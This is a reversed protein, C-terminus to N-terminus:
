EDSQWEKPCTRNNKFWDTDKLKTNNNSCNLSIEGYNCSFVINGNMSTYGTLKGSDSLVALTTIYVKDTYKAVRDVFEQAPFTHPGPVGKTYETTGACCCVCVYEPKIKSLLKDSSSTYSGHHGGKFLVVEPLNPNSEVLSAEGAEELDGTFLYRNSGQSILVCVSYDNENSAKNDYFKQYLVEMTISGDETLNYVKQAGNANNICDMATYCNAGAAVEKDRADCYKKYIGSTADTLAFEIINKCEYREFIGKASSTGVFGAIHDQHAHTAIVYELVGDTCYQNVYNGITKASDKRSGADILIDTDGAKIYVSDGTYQNGLELFHISLNGNAIVGSENVTIQVECTETVGNETYSIELTKTGVTSTDVASTNYTEIQKTSGNNYTATVTLKALDIQEGLVVAGNYTASVYVLSLATVTVKVEATQGGFTITVTQEGSVTADYDFVEFNTVTKEDGNDYVAVVTFISKSLEDGCYITVSEDVTVHLSEVTKPLLYVDAKTTKGQYTITVTQNTWVDIDYGSIAFDTVIEEKGNNYVATVAFMEKTVQHGWYVQADDKFEALIYDLMIPQVTVTVQATKGDYSITVTQKGSTNADYGIIEFDTVPEEKGNNYIAVVDFDNADLGDGVVLDSGCYEAVISEVMVPLVNVTLPTTVTRDNETYSISIQKEGVTQTVSDLGEVSFESSNLQKTNGDWYTVSVSVDDVTFACGVVAQKSQEAALSKPLAIWKAYYIRSIAEDAVINDAAKVTCQRDTYWGDFLYGERRVTEPFELATGKIVTQAIPEAGDYNWNFKVTFTQNCAALAFIAFLALIILLTVTKKSRITM